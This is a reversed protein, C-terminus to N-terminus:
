EERHVQMRSCRNSPISSGQALFPLGQAFRERIRQATRLKLAHKQLSETRGAGVGENRQGSPRAVGSILFSESTARAAQVRTWFRAV